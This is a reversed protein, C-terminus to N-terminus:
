EEPKQPAKGHYAPLPQPVREEDVMRAEMDHLPAGHCNHAVANHLLVDPFSHAVVDCLPVGQFIHEVMDHLLADHGNNAVVDHFQGCLCSHAM